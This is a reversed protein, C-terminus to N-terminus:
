PETKAVDELVNDTQGDGAASTDSLTPNDTGPPTYLYTASDTVLVFQNRNLDEIVRRNMDIAADVLGELTDVEVKPGDLVADPVRGATIWSDFEERHKRYTVKARDSEPVSLRGTIRAGALGILGCVSAMLLLPGGVEKFPGYSIPVATRHTRNGSASVPGDDRLQYVGQEFQIPLRYSRTREVPQGNRTGSLQVRSLLHARITGPTEGLRREIAEAREKAATVNTSFSLRQRQESELTTTSTALARETRWYVTENGEVDSVSRFVLALSTNATLSGGEIATYRYTFSGNLRPTLQTFYVSRNHLVTGEDYPGTGNTVTASYSFGGTSEWATVREIDTETGADLYTDATVYGGFLGLVVVVAVVLAFNEAVVARARTTNEGM